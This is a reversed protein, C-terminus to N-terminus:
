EDCWCTYTCHRCFLVGQRDLVKSVGRPSSAQPSWVFQCIGQYIVPLEVRRNGSGFISRESAPLWQRLSRRGLTRRMPTSILEERKDKEPMLTYKNWSRLAEQSWGDETGVAVARTWAGSARVPVSTVGTQDRKRSDTGGWETRQVTSKEWQTREKGSIDSSRHGTM